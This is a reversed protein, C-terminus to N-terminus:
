FPNRDVIPVIKKGASQVICDVDLFARYLRERDRADCIFFGLRPDYKFKKAIKWQKM